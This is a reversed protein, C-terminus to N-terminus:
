ERFVYLLWCLGSGIAFVLWAQEIFYPYIMLALGIVMPKMLGSKKGYVFTALGVSGFVIAGFLSGPTPM